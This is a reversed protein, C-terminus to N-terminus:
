KPKSEDAEKLTSIRHRRCYDLVMIEFMNSLTRHETSAAAEWAARIRPSLKM